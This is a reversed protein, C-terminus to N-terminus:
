RPTRRSLDPRPQGVSACENFANQDWVDADREIWASWDRAFQVSRPSFVMIGINYASGARRWQELGEDKVTAMLHDTSTLIDAEPYAKFYPFPNRLWVTDVDAIIVTCNMQTFLQM